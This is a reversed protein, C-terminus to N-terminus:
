ALSCFWLTWWIQPKKKRFFFCLMYIRWNGYVMMCVILGVSYVVLHGIYFWLGQCHYWTKNLKFYFLVKCFMEGWLELKPAFMNIFKMTRMLLMKVVTLDTWYSRYSEDHAIQLGLCVTIWNFYRITGNPVILRFLFQEKRGVTSSQFTNHLLDTHM